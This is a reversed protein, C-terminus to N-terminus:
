QRARERMRRLGEIIAKARRSGVGDVDDLADPTATLMENLTGFREVLRNVVPGPLMPIRGLLRYGRPRVHVDLADAGTPLGLVEAVTFGDLLADSSLAALSAKIASIRRPRDDPAYDRLLTTFEPDVSGLLEDAQMRVLRGETGLQVIYREVERGVRLVMETRQVVQVVDGVTVLDEFELASLHASVEELRSQYGALTQLAQNAKALLVEIDQLIIKERGMYLTVVARRKSISVVLAETQQSLREATRHRMGTESTPLSPDPVIHVNARLITRVAGDLIIAGDMKSLEFLRQPTFPIDVTFGGNCVRGVAPEDGIVVLAGNNASIVHDLGERLPTGPAVKELAELMRDTPPMLRTEKSSKEITGRDRATWVGPDSGATAAM